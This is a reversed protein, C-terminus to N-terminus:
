GKVSGMMIGKVFYKQVFPYVCVIPLTSVVVAANQVSRETPRSKSLIEAIQSGKMDSMNLQSTILINRLILQLPFKKSDTMFLYADFWSNWHGVAYFLAVTVLSPVSLPLILKFLIYIQNAGDIEASENISEPIEMMFNRLLLVNWVSILGPVIYVLINNQMGTAKAVVYYPILGGSFLMTIFLYMTIANRFPLDKRSLTYAVFSSFLMNLATGAIARYLTITYGSVIDRSGFLMLKYATLDFKEPIIIIPRRASEELSVFSNALIYLLPIIVVLAFLIMFLINFINFIKEKGSEKVM